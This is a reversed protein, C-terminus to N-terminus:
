DEEAGDSMGGDRGFRKHKGRREDMMENFKAKQEPTLLKRIALMNEFHLSSAQGQLAQLEKHNAILVDDAAGSKIASELKERAAKRQDRLGKMADRQSKVLAKVQEKQEPTLGLKKVIREANQFPGQGKEPRAQAPQVVLMSGSLLLGLTSTLISRQM